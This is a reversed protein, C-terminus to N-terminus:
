KPHAARQVRSTKEEPTQKRKLRVRAELKFINGNCVPRDSGAGVLGIGHGTLFCQRYPLFKSLNTPTRRVVFGQRGFVDSIALTEPIPVHKHSGGECYTTVARIESLICSM